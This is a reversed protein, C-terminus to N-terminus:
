RKSYENIRDKISDKLEGLYDPPFIEPQISNHSRQKDNTHISDLPVDVAECCQMSRCEYFVQNETSILRRRSLIGEQYTGARRGWKSHQIDTKPRLLSSLVLIGKMEIAPQPVRPRRGIGPLGYHPDSGAAAIITIEAHHYVMDMHKIQKQKQQLDQQPICYRDIWLFQLGLEMTVAMADRIVTPIQSPLSGDGIEDIQAGHSRGWVYSLAAYTQLNRDVIKWTNCDILKLGPIAASSKLSCFRTHHTTCYQFWRRIVELDITVDNLRHIQLVTPRSLRRVGLFQGYKPFAYTGNLCDLDQNKLVALCIGSQIGELPQRSFRSRNLLAYEASLACLSYDTSKTLGAFEKYEGPVSAVQCFLRCLPCARQNSPDMLKGLKLIERGYDPRTETERVIRDFDIAACRECFLGPTNEKGDEGFGPGNMANHEFFSLKTHSEM